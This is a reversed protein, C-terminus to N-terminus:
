LDFPAAEAEDEHTWERLEEELEDPEIYVNMRDLIAAAGYVGKDDWQYARIRFSMTSIDAGDLVKITNKDLLTKEGDIVMNVIPPRLGDFKISVKIYPRPVVDSPADDRVKTERIYWGEAKMEAALEDDLFVAFTPQTNKPNFKDVGKFNRFYLDSRKLGKFTRPAIYAKEKAM